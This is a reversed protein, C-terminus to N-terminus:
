EASAEEPARDLVERVTRLLMNPEYPKTLLVRDAVESSESNINSGPYGSSFIIPKEASLARVQAEVELGSMGPMLIDLIVLDFRDPAESFVALAEVGDKACVVDYGARCLIRKLINRIPPEDDAILIRETGGQIESTSSQRPSTAKREVLPLYLKFTSGVGFESEVHIMGEHQQVIGYVSSLGLGTSRKLSKTTFFPDFIRDMDEPKIGVGTDTITLLAYHGPKAWPQSICHEEQILVSTTQLTLRGGRPTMAERANTCINLIVQEIHSPDANIESHINGPIIDIDIHTSLDADLESAIVRELLPTLESLLDNINILERQPHQRRSYALLEKTLNAARFSAARIENLSEQVIQPNDQDLEALEAYGLIAMLQNNFDHAVGGALLSLNELYENRRTMAEVRQRQVEALHMQTVDAIRGWVHILHEDVVDGYGYTVIWRSQHDGMKQVYPESQTIYGSRIFHIFGQHIVDLNTNGFAIPALDKLTLGLIKEPTQASTWRAYQRNCLVVRASMMAQAQEEVPLSVSVPQQPSACWVGDPIIELFARMRADSDRLDSEADIRRTSQNILHVIFRLLWLDLNTWHRPADFAGFGLVYQIKGEEMLPASLLSRLGQARMMALLVGLHAPNDGEIDSISLTGHTQLHVFLQDLLSIPLRRREPLSQGQGDRRWNYRLHLVDGELVYLFCADACSFDGIKQLAVLAAADVDKTTLFDSSLDKLLSQLDNSLPEQPRTSENQPMWADLGQTFKLQHAGARVFAEIWAEVQTPEVGARQCADEITMDGLLLELVLSAQPNQQWTELIKPSIKMPMLTGM